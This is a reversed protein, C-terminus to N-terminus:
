RPQVWPKAISTPVGSTVFTLPLFFITVKKCFTLAKVFKYGFAPCCVLTLLRINHGQQVTIQAERVSRRSELVSTGSFLQPFPVNDVKLFKLQFRWRVNDWLGKIEKMKEENM